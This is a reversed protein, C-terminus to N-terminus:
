RRWNPSIPGTPPGGKDRQEPPLAQQQRVREWGPSDRTVEQGAKKADDEPKCGTLAGIVQFALVAWLLYKVMNAHGM